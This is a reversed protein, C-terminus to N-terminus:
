RKNRLTNLIPAVPKKSAFASASKVDMTNTNMAPPHQRYKLGLANSM